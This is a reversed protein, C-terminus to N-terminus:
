PLSITNHKHTVEQEAERIVIKYNKLAKAFAVILKMM